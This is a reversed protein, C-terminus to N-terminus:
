YMSIGQMDNLYATSICVVLQGSRPAAWQMKSLPLECCPGGRARWLNVLIRVHKNNLVIQFLDCASSCHGTHKNTLFEYPSTIINTRQVVLSLQYATYQM